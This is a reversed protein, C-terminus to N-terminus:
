GKQYFVTKKTLGIFLTGNFIKWELFYGCSLPALTEMNRQVSLPFYQAFSKNKLIKKCYKYAHKIYLFFDSQNIKSYFFIIGSFKKNDTLSTIPVLNTQRMTSNQEYPVNEVKKPTYPTRKENM